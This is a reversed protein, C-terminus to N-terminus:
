SEKNQEFTNSFFAKLQNLLFFVVVTLLFYWPFWQLSEIFIADKTATSDASGEQPYGLRIYAILAGYLFSVAGYIFNTSFGKLSLVTAKQESPAVENLYRSVLFSKRCLALNGAFYGLVSDGDLSGM